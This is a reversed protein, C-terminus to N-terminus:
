QNSFTGLGNSNLYEITLQQTNTNFNIAAIGVANEGRPYYSFTDGDWHSLFFEQPKPGLSLILKNDRVSIKAAGYYRNKYHGTYSNLNQAPMPKAPPQIDALKSPNSYFGAFAPQYLNLWDFQVEGTEVIDMFQATIAEPIGHPEGNSLVTIAIDGAPLFVVNTAAGLLFAGSHSWRVHGSADVQFNIGYGYMSPRTLPDSSVNSIFHPQRMIQLSNADILQVGDLKGNALHLQMWRAMDHATSSVGGAASQADANRVPGPVWTGQKRQHTIARNEANLYDVFRSSTSHMKAPQYLLSESLDEWRTNHAKAVADAATTLGFNTYEYQDRFRTIPLHRLQHIIKERSYGIDELLDGAHGPLGSRHSYLDGLTINISVADNDSGLQFDPLYKVIPDDWSITGASVARSIVTAGVPKSLSALQFVTNADVTNSAKSSRLGFGELLLIENSRVVAVALGPLGSTDMAQQIIGPLAAVATAINDETIKTVTWSGPNKNNNTIKQQNAKPVTCSTSIALSLAIGISKFIINKM